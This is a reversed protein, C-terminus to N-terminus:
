TAVIKLASGPIRWAKNGRVRAGGPNGQSTQAEAYYCRQLAQVM